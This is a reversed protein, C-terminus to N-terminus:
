LNSGQVAWWGARGGHSSGVTGISARRSGEGYSIRPHGGREDDDEDDDGHDDDRDDADVVAEHLAPQADILGEGLDLHLELAAPVEDGVEHIGDLAVHAELLAHELVDGPRAGVGDGRAGLTRALQRSGLVREGGGEAGQEGHDPFVRPRLRALVLALPAGGARAPRARFVGGACGGGLVRWETSSASMTAASSPRSAKAM